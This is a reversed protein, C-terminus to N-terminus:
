PTPGANIAAVAVAPPSFDKVTLTNIEIEPISIHTITKRAMIERETSVLLPGAQRWGAFTVSEVPANALHLYRHMGRPLGNGVDFFMELHEEGRSFFTIADCETGEFPHKHHVDYSQFPAARIGNLVDFSRAIEPPLSVMSQPVLTFAFERPAWRWAIVGNTGLEVALGVEPSRRRVIFGGDNSSAIELILSGAGTVTQLKFSVSTLQEFAARGGMAEYARDLIAVVEPPMTAPPTAATEAAGTAVPATQAYGSSEGLHLSLILLASCPTGALLLLKSPTAVSVPSHLFTAPKGVPRSEAGFVGM